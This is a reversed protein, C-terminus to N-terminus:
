RSQSGPVQDRLRKEAAADIYWSATLTPQDEHVMLPEKMGPIAVQTVAGTGETQLIAVRSGAKAAEAQIRPLNFYIWGSTTIGPPLSIKKFTVSVHPKNADLQGASFSVPTTAASGGKYFVVTVSTRTRRLGLKANAAPIFVDVPDDGPASLLCIYSFGQQTTSQLIGSIASSMGTEISKPDQSEADQFPLRFPSAGLFMAGSPIADVLVKTEGFLLGPLCFLLLLLTKM